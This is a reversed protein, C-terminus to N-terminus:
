NQDDAKQLAEWWTRMLPPAKVDKDQHHEILWLTQEDVGAARALQAGLHPHEALVWFPHRWGKPRALWTQAWHPAIHTALVWASRHIVTLRAQVKGVDHLLAARMLPAADWGQAQLTRLVRLSHSRDRRSQRNWLKVQEPTLWRAVEAKDAASLRPWLGRIVQGIRYLIRKGLRTFQTTNV